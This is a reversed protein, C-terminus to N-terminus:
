DQDNPKSLEKPMDGLDGSGSSAADDHLYQKAMDRTLNKIFNLGRVNVSVSRDYDEGKIARSSKYTFDWLAAHLSIERSIDEGRTTKNNYKLPILGLLVVIGEAGAFPPDIILGRNELDDLAVKAKKVIERQKEDSIDLSNMLSRNTRQWYNFGFDIKTDSNEVRGSDSVITTIYQLCESYLIKEHKSLHAEFKGDGSAFRDMWVSLLMCCMLFGEKNVLLPVGHSGHVHPIRLNVNYEDITLCAEVKAPRNGHNRPVALELALLRYPNQLVWLADASLSLLERGTSDHNLILPNRLESL